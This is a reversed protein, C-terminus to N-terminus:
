QATALAKAFDAVSAFRQQPDKSLAKFVVQEVEKSITPNNERLSPPPSSLHQNMIEWAGSGQFPRSGSLWEYVVVGLSYQDSAPQPKGQIQEPAMYPLTGAMQQTTMSHESHAVVAIGFDSLLVEDRSGILMNEPKIDRHILKKQHAYELAEAVQGTYSIISDLSLRTGKPHRQRLTGGPAYDMVLFPMGGEINLVSQELDPEEGELGFELVRVIHPHVLGAITRAEDLFSKIAEKTLRIHQVKIAAHIKLYVQEGLYVDAFGGNGLLRILRYNGLCRNIPKSLRAVPNSQAQEQAVSKKSPSEIWVNNQDHSTKLEIPKAQESTTAAPTVPAPPIIPQEPVSPLPVISRTVMQSSVPPYISAESPSLLLRCKSCYKAERPVLEGCRPCPFRAAAPQRPILVSSQQIPQRYLSQQAQARQVAEMEAMQQAKAGEMEAIRPADITAPRNAEKLDTRVAWRYLTRRLHGLQLHGFLLTIVLLLVALLAVVAIVLQWLAISGGAITVTNTPNSQGESSNNTPHLSLAALDKAAQFTPDANAAIQFDKYATTFDAKSYADMGNQWGDHVNNLPHPTFGPIKNKIFAQIDNSASPVKLHLDTLEGNSNILPTGAELADTSSVQIPTRFKETQGPFTSTDSSNSAPPPLSPQASTSSTLAVGNRQLEVAIDQNPPSQQQALDIFPLLQNHAQAGLPFFPFLAPGSQCATEQCIVAGGSPSVFTNEQQNYATSLYVGISVLTAPPNGDACLAQKGNVLSSDTLIWNQDDANQVPQSAVIVGLGTCYVSGTNKTDYRVLLRVVSVDARLLAPPTSSLANPVQAAFATPMSSSTVLYLALSFIQLAALAFLHNKRKIQYWQRNSRM